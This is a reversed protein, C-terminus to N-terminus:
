KYLLFSFHHDHIIYKIIKMLFFEAEKVFFDAENM